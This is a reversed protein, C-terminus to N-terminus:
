PAKGELRDLIRAELLQAAQQERPGSNALEIWTQFMSAWSRGGEQDPNFYLVDDSTEILEVNPFALTPTAELLTSISHVENVYLSLRNNDSLVGYHAASGLGTAIYRITGRFEERYMAGWIQSPNMGSRMLQPPNCKPKYNTRLREMLLRPNVLRLGDQNKEVIFEEQLSRWVKSATALTLRSSWANASSTVSFSRIARERLDGVTRYQPQILFCRAFISSDGRYINKIPETSKYLNPNGSKWVAFDPALVVCNGCLDLGSVNREKLFKLREENLYPVMVIPLYPTEKAYHQIQMVAMEVSKPTGNPKYELAFKARKQGWSIEVIADFQQLGRDHPVVILEIPEFPIM